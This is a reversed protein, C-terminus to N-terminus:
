LVQPNRMWAAYTLASAFTVWLLYPILLAGALPRARWFAALTLVILVWLILIEGFAWAGLHWAFFLWTWLANLSLQILYLWLAGRAARWGRASWILWAAIGMLVYLATWVPAFVWGPPAWDPRAIQGYFTGADTSALAGVAAAVFTGLLWGLLGVTRAAIPLDAGSREGHLMHGLTGCRSIAREFEM